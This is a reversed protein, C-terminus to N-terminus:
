CVVVMFYGRMCYFFLFCEKGTCTILIDIQKIVMDIKVVRFGDMSSLFLFFSIFETRLDAYGCNYM